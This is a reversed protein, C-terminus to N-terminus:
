SCSGSVADNRVRAKTRVARVLNNDSPPHGRLEIEFARVVVQPPNAPTGVCNSSLSITMPSPILNFQTIIVTNPDSLAQPTNGAVFSYLVGAKNGDNPGTGLKFGFMELTSTANNPTGQEIYYCLSSLTPTSAPSSLAAAVASADDCSGPIINRYANQPIPAMSGPIYVGSAASAWYGARRIDRAVLDSSTRLDQILRTEVMLDRNNKTMTSMLVLAGTVVFLGLTIGVMSEVLSFGKQRSRKNTKVLM